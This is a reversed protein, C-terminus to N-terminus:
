TINSSSPFVIAEVIGASSSVLGNPHQYGLIRQSNRWSPSSSHSVANNIWSYQFESRPIPSSVFANDFLSGTIVSSGDQELRRSENRHQKNFSGSTSYTAAVISGYESDIGFQGCHLALLTNLGRSKGLHDVVRIQNPEGSGGITSSPSSTNDIRIKNGRVTLNRFPLANHVSLERAYVDLYANSEIEIGGPAAFRSSIITKNQDGNRLTPTPVALVVDYQSFVAPVLDTGDEMGRIVSFSNGTETIGVNLASGTTSSTLEFTATAMTVSYTVTDYVTNDIISQSLSNWFTANATGQSCDIGKLTPTDSVSSNSDLEFTVGDIVITDGDTSGAATVGGAMGVLSSFSAGTSSISVNNTAGGTSATLAFTATGGNDTIVITDFDTNAIISSKLSNWFTSNSVGVGCNIDQGSSVGDGTVDLEFRVGDITIFHGDTAGSANSGGASAVLSSFSTGTETTIDGNRSSGITSSTISFTATNGNDTISITDFDTNTKISASLVNWFNTKDQNTTFAVATNLGTVSSNNDLEFVKSNLTITDGDQTTLGTGSQTTTVINSTNSYNTGSGVITGAFESGTSNTKVVFDAYGATEYISELLYLETSNESATAHQNSVYEKLLENNELSSNRNLDFNGDGAFNDGFRWWAKLNSSSVTTRAAYLNGNYLLNADTTTLIAEWLAFEDLGALLSKSSADNPAYFTYQLSGTPIDTILGVDHSVTVTPPLDESGNIFIDISSPAAPAASTASVTPQVLTIHAWQDMYGSLGLSYDVHM